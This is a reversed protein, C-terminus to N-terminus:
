IGTCTRNGPKLAPRLAASRDPHARLRHPQPTHARSESPPPATPPRPPPPTRAAPCPTALKYPPYGSNRVDWFIDEFMCSTETNMLLATDCDPQPNALLSPSSLHPWPACPAAHPVPCAHAPPTHKPSTLQPHPSRRTPALRLAGAHANSGLPMVVALPSCGVTHACWWPSWQGGVM